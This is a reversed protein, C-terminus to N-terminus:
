FPNIQDVKGYKNNFRDISENIITYAETRGQWEKVKAYKPEELNKYTRFFETIENLYHMPVEILNEYDKYVPDTNAVALIKEDVGKEDEMILVGIPKCQLVTLPIISTSSLVLIDLPDGDLSFTGPILGYDHPYMVSSHLPRDLLLVNCKKSLEYKTKSGQPCEIIANVNEPPKEGPSINKWM